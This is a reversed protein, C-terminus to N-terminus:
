DKEYLEEFKKLVLKPFFIPYKKFQSLYLLKNISRGVIVQELLNLFLFLYSVEKKRFGKLYIILKDNEM